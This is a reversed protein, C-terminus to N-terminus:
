YEKNLEVNSQTRFKFFANLNVDFDARLQLNSSRNHIYNQDYNPDIANREFHPICIQSIFSAVICRITYNNSM